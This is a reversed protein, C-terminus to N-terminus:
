AAEYTFRANITDLQAWTFPTTASVGGEFAYTGSSLISTIYVFSSYNVLIAPYTGAAYDGFSGSGMFTYNSVKAAVPLTFTPTGTVTSTTGLVFYIEVNVTKGIQQYRATLTGNGVSINSPSSTFATWPYLTEASKYALGTATTSDAVLMTDNAGVSTIAPTDNASAGIIDGKANVIANQIANSDDQAVWVFDMNANSNKALVQGTTGGLLDAMSSDVAQGFVEFDAPLDTVLDTPTPM